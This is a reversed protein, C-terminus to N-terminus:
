YLEGQKAQLSIKLINVDNSNVQCNGDLDGRLYGGTAVTEHVLSKSKIYSFDVGNIWGDQAESTVGTVDGAMIPYRTFDYVPSTDASDTLSIEGGAQNYPGEQNNIGYKMQLHKPGKVFVAVERIGFDTLVLSGSFVLKGEVVAKSQPIIGSYARSTGGGLVIFQLPWNVVCKADNGNVNAFAVKYNLVSDNSTQCECDPKFPCQPNRCVGYLILPIASPISGEVEPCIQILTQQESESLSGGSIQTKSLIEAPMERSCPWWQPFCILGDGCSSNVGCSQNCSRPLVPTPLINDGQIIYRSDGIEGVKLASDTAGAVPNYGGVKTKARDITLKGGSGTKVALFRITAVQVMGSALDAPKKNLDAIAVLRLCKYGEGVVSVDVLTGLVKKNLEVSLTPDTESMVLENGYCVQTDISSIKAGDTEVWLQAVVEDGVKKEILDPLILLKTGAFYAGRQTNQNQKVLLLGGALAGVMILSVIITKSKNKM